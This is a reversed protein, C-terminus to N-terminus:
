FKLIPIMSMIARFLQNESLYVIYFRSIVKVDQSQLCTKISICALFVLKAYCIASHNIIVLTYEYLKFHHTKYKLYSARFHKM